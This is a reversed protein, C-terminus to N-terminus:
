MRSRTLMHEVCIAVRYAEQISQCYNMNEIIDPRLGRIYCILDHIKGEELVCLYQLEQFQRSYGDVALGEQKLSFFQKFSSENEFYRDGYKYEYLGRQAENSRGFIKM